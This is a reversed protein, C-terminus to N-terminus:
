VVPAYNGDKNKKFYKGNQLNVLITNERVHREKLVKDVIQDKKLPGNSNLVNKIIDRVVGKKYGWESLAYLGRGVLVFRNDKILENHCTATNAKKNFKKEIKSAVEKFHMPSGHQRLVLYALDRIGRAKVNPSLSLGWEGLPNKNIVKSLSLWRIVRDKDKIGKIGKIEKKLHNLFKIIIDMETVLEQKEIDGHLLKLSNQVKTSLVDDITWRHHFEDDERLREFYDGIVLLFHYQNQIGIDKVLYELFDKENVIGGNENMVQKLEEFIQNENRFTDSKRIASLAFSEIQRVRERTIGYIGGISELTMRKPEKGLGYRMTIVEMARPSLELLLKKVEQKPKFTMVANKM